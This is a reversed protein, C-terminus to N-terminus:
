WALMLGQRQFPSVQCQFANIKLTRPFAVSTIRTTLGNDKCEFHGQELGLWTMRQGVQCQINNRDVKQQWALLGYSRLVNEEEM